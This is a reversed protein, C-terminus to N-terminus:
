NINTSVNNIYDDYLPSLDRLKQVTPKLISILNDIDDITNERGLTFRIAGNAMEHPLQMAMLVHSPDLSGSSCASGTSAYCGHMDLHLLLSEGEIFRFSINVNGPLRGDAPGNLTTHPITTLIENIMRDRLRTLRKYESPLTEMTAKLAAGLGAIGMVNETGPRRGREQAGGHMLPAINAGKRIYLAGIGKPGYFKHASLSLMDVGLAEVDVPIHGVAQVADTHLLIGRTRTIKGIEGIPQIAGVENNALMVSILCTDPRIANEIDKVDVVGRADVPVFDIDIGNKEYYQCLTHIAPHEISTTIVHKRNQKRGTAIAGHVAWNDAETGSGTFYIEGPTANIADATIQRTEDIAKRVQRASTYVSSPNAYIESLYPLMAERAAPHLPTTAAIDLYIM